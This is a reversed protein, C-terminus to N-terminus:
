VTTRLAPMCWRPAPRGQRGGHSAHLCGRPSDAHGVTANLAMGTRLWERLNASTPFRDLHTQFNTGYNLQVTDLLIYVM